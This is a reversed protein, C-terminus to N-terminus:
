LNNIASNNTLGPDNQKKLSILIEVNVAWEWM